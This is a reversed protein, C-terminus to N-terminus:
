TKSIIGVETSDSEQIGKENLRRSVKQSESPGVGRKWGSFSPKLKGALSCAGLLVTLFLPEKGDSNQALGVAGALEAM